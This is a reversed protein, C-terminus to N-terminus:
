YAGSARALRSPVFQLTMPAVLATRKVRAPLPYDQGDTPTNLKAAAAMRRMANMRPSGGGGQNAGPNM